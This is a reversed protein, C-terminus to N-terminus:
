KAQVPVMLANSQSGQTIVSLPYNQTPLNPVALNLQYLGVFGPALGAFAPSVTTGGIQVQVPAIVQAFPSAPAPQGSGVSPTVNGLGTLFVILAEGDHAPNSATVPTYDAHLVGSNFIAPAADSVSVQTEAFGTTTTVRLTGTGKFGMPLQANIQGPSAYVLPISGGNLTVTAGGLDTPLPTASASASSTSLATGFISILEGPALANTFSAANVVSGPALAPLTLTFHDIDSGDGGIAKVTIQSASVSVNLYHYDSKEAVLFPEEYTPHPVGGGGGTTVVVVGPGSTVPVGGRMPKTRMYSHEHGDFVLQVGHRELIPMVIDHMAVCLPDGVHQSVPYPVHHFYVIKWPQPTNTLDADLWQLMRSQAPTGMLNSDLGTFHADGWDFSFYRGLDAPPVTEQPNSTLALYPGANNTYYEHNGPVMFFPTRRLMTYYYDFFNAQFESFLGSEYAIDGVQLVLDPTENVMRLTVARQGASAAGSDGFVLFSFPGPGSTRFKYDSEPSINQGGVKVRYSYQTGPTLGTINAQYQYFNFSLGTVATSFPTVTATVTNAFSQDTSYEVTAALNERTSFLITVRDPRLNQLYPLQVPTAALAPSVSLAAGATALLLALACRLPVIRQRATM